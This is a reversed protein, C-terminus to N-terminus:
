TRGYEDYREIIQRCYELPLCWDDARYDWGQGWIIRQGTKLDFEEHSSLGGDFAKSEIKIPTDFVISVSEKRWKPNPIFNATASHVDGDKSVVEVSLTLSEPTNIKGRWKNFRYAWSHLTYRWGM